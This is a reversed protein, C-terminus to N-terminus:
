YDFSRDTGKGFRLLDVHRKIPDLVVADWLDEELAGLPRDGQDKKPRSVSCGISYNHIGNSDVSIKDRHNHGHALFALKGKRGLFDCSISAKFDSNATYSGSYKGGTVFSNIIGDVLEYNYPYAGQPGHREGFPIHQYICVTKDSSAKLTQYLWTIQAQRYGYVSIDVYKSYGDTDFIHPIDQTNLIIVRVNKEPLDYYYYGMKDSANQKIDFITSPRTAIEYMEAHTIIQKFKGHWANGPDTSKYSLIKKLKGGARGDGWANTCHNGWSVFYPCKCLGLTSVAQRYNSVAVDHSQTSGDHTDGNLVVYDIDIFNTLEAVNKIHDNSRIYNELDDRIVTDTAYHTDSIHISTITNKNQLKLIKRAIERLGNIFYIAQVFHNQFKTLVCKISATGNILDDTVKVTTGKATTEWTTDHNGNGDVKFWMLDNETITDTIEQGNKYIHATITTLKSEGEIFGTGNDPILKISYISEIENKQKQLAYLDSSILSQLQQINDITAKNDTPNSRHIEKATVRAKIRLPPNYEEDIFTIYDGLSVDADNFLFSVEASFEPQSREELINRLENFNDIDDNYSSTAYGKAWGTFREKSTNGSGYEANAVRDYVVSGGALTYFRGDDYVLNNFHRRTDEIATIVSDINVSKSIAMIDVGSYMVKDTKDSGLSHYINILKKLVKLNQFEVSFTIECGFAQAIKQIRALPTENTSTDVLRKIDSGLANTGIQWGSDYLERNIYYEIYQPSNSEFQSADGNRLELGLDVASISRVTENENEIARIYLCIDEGVDNEMLIYCAEKILSTEYPSVPNYEDIRPGTNKVIDMTLTNLKTGNILETTHIDDEVVIGDQAETDIMTLSNFGHDLIHYIM